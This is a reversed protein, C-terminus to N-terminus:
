RRVTGRIIARLNTCSTIASAVLKLTDAIGNTNFGTIAVTQWTSSVAIASAGSMPTSNIQIAVTASGSDCGIDVRTFTYFEPLYYMFYQPTTTPNYPGLTFNVPLVSTGGSLGWYYVGANNLLNASGAVGTDASTNGLMSDSGQKVFNVTNGGMNEYDFNYGATASSGSPLTITLATGGGKFWILKGNHTNDLTTSTTIIIPIRSARITGVTTSGINTADITGGTIAVSNAAQTAITGLGTVQTTTINGSLNQATTATSANGSIGIPWTGTANSGGTLAKGALDTTLNTVQSEPITIVTNLYTTLGSMTYKVSNTQYGAILDTSSIAGAPNFQSITQDSMILDKNLGIIETIISLKIERM